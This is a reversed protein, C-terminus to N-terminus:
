EADSSQALVDWILETLEQLRVSDDAQLDFARACREVFGSTVRDLSYRVAEPNRFRDPHRAMIEHYKLGNAVAELLTRELPNLAAWAAAIERRISLETERGKWANHGAAASHWPVDDLKQYHYSPYFSKGEEDMALDSTEGDRREGRIEQVHHTLKSATQPGCRQLLERVAETVDTQGRERLEDAVQEIPLARRLGPIWWRLPRETPDVPRAVARVAVGVEEWTRARQALDPWAACNRAYQRKLADWTLSHRGDFTFMRIRPEPMDDLTYAQFPTRGQFPARGIPRADCDTFVDNTLAALAEDGRERDLFFDDPLGRQEVLRTVRQLMASWLAGGERRARYWAVIKPKLQNKSMTRPRQHSVTCWNAPAHPM